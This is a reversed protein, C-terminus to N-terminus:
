LDNTPEDMVMLNSSKALGIALALRNREGGSLAGVPQRLQEPKFLFDKAY